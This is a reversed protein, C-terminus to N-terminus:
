THSFSYVASDTPPLLENRRPVTTNICTLLSKYPMVMRCNKREEPYCRSSGTTKLKFCRSDPDSRWVDDTERVLHLYDSSSLAKSTFAFETSDALAPLAGTQRSIIEYIRMSDEM